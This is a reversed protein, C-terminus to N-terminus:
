DAHALVGLKHLLIEIKSWDDYLACKIQPMNISEDLYNEINGLSYFSM